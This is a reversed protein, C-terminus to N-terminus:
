KHNLDLSIVMVVRAAKNPDTNVVRAVLAQGNPGIAVGPQGGLLCRHM